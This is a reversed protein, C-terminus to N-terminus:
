LKFPNLLNPDGYRWYLYFGVILTLSIGSLWQTIRIITSSEDIQSDAIGALVLAIINIFASLLLLSSNSIYGLIGWTMIKLACFVLLCVGVISVILAVTALANIGIQQHSTQPDDSSPSSGEEHISPQGSVSPKVYSSTLTFWRQWPVFTKGVRVEDFDDLQIQGYCRMGNVFTGNTSNNDILIIRGDDHQIIRCHDRSVFPDQVVITNKSSRGITVVKMLILRILRCFGRSVVESDLTLLYKTKKENGFLLSM